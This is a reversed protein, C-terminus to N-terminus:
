LSFRYNIVAYISVPKGDKLAPEFKIRRAAKIAEETLGYPLENMPSVHTGKGSSALVMRVTIEGEFGNARAEDTYEPAPKSKIVARRTVEKATYIKEEKQEAQEGSPEQLLGADAPWSISLGILLSLLYKKGM